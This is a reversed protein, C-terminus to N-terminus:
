FIVSTTLFKIIQKRNNGREREREGWRGEECEGFGGRGM